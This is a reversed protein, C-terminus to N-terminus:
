RGAPRDSLVEGQGPGCDPSVVLLRMQGPTDTALVLLVGARGSLSVQRAGLV